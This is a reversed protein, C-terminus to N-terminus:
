VSKSTIKQFYEGALRREEESGCDLCLDDYKGISSRLNKIVVDEALCSKCTGYNAKETSYTVEMNRTGYYYKGCEDCERLGLDEDSPKVEWSDGEEHGCFPCILEDTYEHDIENM